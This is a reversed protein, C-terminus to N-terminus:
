VAMRKGAHYALIKRKTVKGKQGPAPHLFMDNILQKKQGIPLPEGEVKLPNLENLLTFESYLLSDKPLVLDGTYTCRGVLNVLFAESSRNLDILRDFNWPYIRKKRAKMPAFLGTILPMTALRDLTTLYASHLHKRLRKPPTFGDNEKQSLFPLYSSANTLIADVERM